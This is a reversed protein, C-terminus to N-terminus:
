WNNIRARRLGISQKIPKQEDTVVKFGGGSLFDQQSVTKFSGGKLFEQQSINAM